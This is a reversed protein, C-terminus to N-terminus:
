INYKLNKGQKKFVTSDQKIRKREMAKGTYKIVSKLIQNVHYCSVTGGGEPSSM